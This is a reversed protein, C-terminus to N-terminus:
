CEEEDKFVHEVVPSMSREVPTWEVFVNVFQVVFEGSGDTEGCLVSVGKFDENESL